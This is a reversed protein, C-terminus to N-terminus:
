DRISAESLCSSSLGFALTRRGGLSVTYGCNWRTFRWICLEAPIIGTGRRDRRHAGDHPLREPHRGLEELRDVLRMVKKADEVSVATANTPEMVLEAGKVTVGAAELATTSRWSIARARTSSGSRTARRSTRAARRRRRSADARGRRRRRGQRRRDPGQARVPVRGFRDVRSQRRRPHLCCSRRSGHPQPQRHAGRRLARSGRPRLGRLHGRRLQGRRRRRRVGQRHRQRDQGQAALLEQGERDRGGALRQEGSQPRRRDQGCRHHHADAQSFLASRKADVAGKRHKTTAWKSHGSM